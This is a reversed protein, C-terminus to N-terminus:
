FGKWFGGANITLLIAGVKCNLSGNMDSLFPSNESGNLLQLHSLVSIM